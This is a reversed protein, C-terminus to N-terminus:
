VAKAAKLDRGRFRLNLHVIGAVPWTRLKATCALLFVLLFFFGGVHVHVCSAGTPKVCVFLRVDRKQPKKRLPVRPWIGRVTVSASVRFARRRAQAHALDTTLFANM